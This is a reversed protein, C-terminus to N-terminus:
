GSPSWSAAALPHYDDDIAGLSDFGILQGAVLGATEVSEESKSAAAAAAAAAAEAAPVPTSGSVPGSVSVSNSVCLTIRLGNRNAM